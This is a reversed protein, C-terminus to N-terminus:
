TCSSACLFLLSRETIEGSALAKLWSQFRNLSELPSRFPIRRISEPTVSKLTKQKRYAEELQRTGSRGRLKKINEDKESVNRNM